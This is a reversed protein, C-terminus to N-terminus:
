TNRRLGLIYTTPRAILGPLVSLTDRLHSAILARASLLFSFTFAFALILVRAALPAGGLAYADLAISLTAAVCALLWAPALSSVLRRAGCLERLAIVLTTPSAVLWYGSILFAIDTADFDLSGAVAAVVLLGAGQALSLLAWKRFHGRAKLSSSAVMFSLRIPLMVGLIQIAGVATRWKGGWILQELPDIIAVLGLSLPSAILSLAKLARLTARSQRIIDDGVRALAPMLVTNLNAAALMSAHVSLQFAFYYSGVVAAPVLRGLVAYDGMTAFVVVVTGLSLWKVDSLLKRWRGLHPRRDLLNEGTVFSLVIWEFIAVLPLPLVFSMPGVDLFALAIAGGYRIMASAIDLRAHTGFRLDIRLKARLLQAPTDLLLTAALVWILNRVAPQGYFDAAFVAIAALVGAISANISLAMWFVPGRLAEYDKQGRQVLLERVGGDRFVTVFAAISIAIAYVGWDDRTLLYGLTVQAVFSLGKTWVTGAAAWSMGRGVVQGLGDNDTSKM